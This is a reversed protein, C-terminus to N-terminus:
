TAGYHRLLEDLVDDDDSCTKRPSQRAGYEVVRVQWLTRIVPLELKEVSHMGFPKEPLGVCPILWLLFRQEARQKRGFVRDHVGRLGRQNGRIQCVDLKNIWEDDDEVSEFLACGGRKSYTLDEVDEHASSTSRFPYGAPRTSRKRVNLV